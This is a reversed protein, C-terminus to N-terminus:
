SAQSENDVMQLIKMLRRRSDRALARYADVILLPDIQSMRAPEHTDRSEPVLTDASASASASAPPPLTTHPITRLDEESAFYNGPLKLADIAKDLTGRTVKRGNLIQSLLSGSIGLRQAVTGRWGSAYNLEAGLKHALSHYRATAIAQASANDQSTDHLDRDRNMRNVSHVAQISSHTM